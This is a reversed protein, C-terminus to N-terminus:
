KNNLLKETFPYFKIIGLRDNDGLNGTEITKLKDQLKEARKKEQQLQKKLERVTVAAKREM